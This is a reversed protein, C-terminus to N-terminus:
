GLQGLFFATLGIYYYYYYCYNYKLIGTDAQIRYCSYCLDLKHQWRAYYIMIM